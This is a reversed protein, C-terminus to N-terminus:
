CRYKNIHIKGRAVQAGIHELSSTTWAGPCHHRCVSQAMWEIDIGYFRKAVLVIQPKYFVIAVSKATFPVAFPCSRKTVKGGLAEIRGMVQCHASDRICM